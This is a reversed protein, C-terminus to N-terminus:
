VTNYKSAVTPYNIDRDSRYAAFWEFVKTLDHLTNTTTSNDIKYVDSLHKRYSSVQTYRHKLLDYLIKQINLQLLEGDGSTAATNMHEWQIFRSIRTLITNIASPTKEGCFDSALHTELGAAILQKKIDDQQSITYDFVDSGGSSTCEYDSDSNSEQGSDNYLNLDIDDDIATAAEIVNLSHEQKFIRLKKRQKVVFSTFSFDKRLPTLKKNIKFYRFM